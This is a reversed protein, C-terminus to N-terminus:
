WLACSIRRASSDQCLTDQSSPISLKSLDEFSGGSAGFCPLLRRRSVSLKNRAKIFFIDKPCHTTSTSFKTAFQTLICAFGIFHQLSPCLTSPEQSSLPNPSTRIKVCLRYLRLPSLQISTLGKEAVQSICLGTPQPCLLWHFLEGIFNQFLNWFEKV